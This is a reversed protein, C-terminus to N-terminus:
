NIINKYLLNCAIEFEEESELPIVKTKDDYSAKRILTDEEDQINSLYFFTKEKHTAEEIIVYEKDDIEIIEVEKEM